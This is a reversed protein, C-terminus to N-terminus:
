SLCACVYRTNNSVTDLNLVRGNRNKICGKESALSNATANSSKVFGKRVVKM